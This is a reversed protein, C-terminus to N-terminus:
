SNATRVVPQLVGHIAIFPEEARAHRRRPRRGGGAVPLVDEVPRTQERGAARLGHEQDRRIGVRGTLGRVPPPGDGLHRVDHELLVEVGRGDMAGAGSSPLRRMRVEIRCAALLSNASLMGGEFSPKM